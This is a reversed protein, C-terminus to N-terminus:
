TRGVDQPATNTWLVKMNTDVEYINDPLNELLTLFRSTSQGLNDEILRNENIGWAWQAVVDLLLKESETFTEGDLQKMGSLYNVEISGVKQGYMAIDTSQKWDSEQYDKTKFEKGGVTIRVSALEPYRLAERLENVMVQFIEDSRTADIKQGIHYLCRLEKARGYENNPGEEKAERTELKTTGRRGAKNVGNMM